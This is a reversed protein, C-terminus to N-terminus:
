LTGSVYRRREDRSQCHARPGMSGTQGRSGYDMAVYTETDPPFRGDGWRPAHLYHFSVCQTRGADIPNFFFVSLLREQRPVQTKRNVWYIEYCHYVPAFRMELQNYFRDGGRVGFLQEVVWPLPKQPAISLLRICDEASYDVHTEVDDAQDLPYGFFTHSTPAHEIEAFIDVVLELPAEIHHSLTCALHYGPREFVPFPTQSKAAKLWIWGHREVVQFPKVRPRLDRNGPSHGVGDCGYQWGHYPCVLKDGEVWGASLAMRRHPCLDKLAGLAGEATRFVVIDQGCLTVRVPKRHRALAHVPLVPPWSDLPQM